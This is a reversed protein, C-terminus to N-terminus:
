SEGTTASSVRDPVPHQNNSRSGNVPAATHPDADRASAAGARAPEGGAPKDTQKDTQQDAPKDATAPEDPEAYAADPTPSAAALAPGRWFLACTLIVGAIMLVIPLVSGTAPHWSGAFPNLGKLGGNYGTGALNRGSGMQWRIMAYVLLVLQIPVLFVAFLKTLSHSQKANLITRELLFAALLPMGVVLPLMYRGGIVWGTTNVETVQLIGAPVFAGIFMVFMRWRDVWGGIALAFVIVSGAIGAYIWYFPPPMFADFWSAVGVMGKVYEEWRNVYEIAAQTMSYQNARPTKPTVLQNAGSVITWGVAFALSAIIGYSWRRVLRNHWLEKLRARSQPLLLAFLGCGLWLPGLARLPALIMAGTGALMILQKANGQPRGILLPIAGCFFAIGAVIELGNPNIAGVLHSTMPTVSAVLAALMLGYRSWRILVVFAWALLAASIAASLLRSLVLGGWGPWLKLPLGVAAYYAPNYRGASTPADILKGGSLPQQCTAPKSKDFGWCRAPHFLGEPVRQIGGAGDNDKGWKIETPKVLVQGSVVGVARISHQVEDAPADYPAAFAWGAFILFFGLFVLGFLKRAGTPASPSTQL